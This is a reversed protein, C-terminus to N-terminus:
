NELLALPDTFAYGLSDAVQRNTINGDLVNLGNRLHEDELLAKRYGKNALALAHPLTANNLARTATQPVAGPMNAVCYHVVDAVIFTPNSHTTPHSTEFCGGQDIAVDVAVSGPRMTAIMERTVLKPAKAGPILISGILLDADAVCDAITKRTSFRTDVQGQFLEDLQLLVESNRDIVTVRARMGYAIMAANQGVVGGGIIVVNAAEVGPVGGLLKGSGGHIRELCNAGAQISLRGAVESMPTLLPLHGSPSTVTEYAICVAGSNLLDQTQEPDPALHLYTFLIQGPKLWAREVPQPEKVKIIMESRTFVAKATPCIEAGAQLYADDGAHIGLGANEEVLVQHGHHVLEAVSDPTMGVRFENDKIERPVGIIM